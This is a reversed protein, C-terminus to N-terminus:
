GEVDFDKIVFVEILDDLSAQPIITAYQATGSPDDFLGEVTGVVLGSPYQEGMGSTVVVDGPILQADNSLYSLKLRGEQMLSFEGELIGSYYTRSVLGGMEMRTDVLTYVVSSSPSVEYVVGLLYGEATIVCDGVEIGSLSGKNITLTEDWNSNKRASVRATELVFDSRKEALNLLERLQENERNADEADRVESELEAVQIRLASLEDMLEDYRLVYDHVSGVWSVASATATQVPTLVTRVLAAFPNMGGMTVSLITLLISLLFSIILLIAGNQQFFRKM